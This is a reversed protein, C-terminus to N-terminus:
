HCHETHERHEAIARCDNRLAFVEAIESDGGNMLQPQEAEGSEDKLKKVAWPPLGTNPDIVPLDEENIGVYNRSLL